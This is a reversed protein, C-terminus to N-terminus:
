CCPHHKIGDKLVINFIGGARLPEGLQNNQSEFYLYKLCWHPYLSYVPPAQKAQQYVVNRLFRALRMCSAPAPLIKKESGRWNWGRPMNFGKAKM